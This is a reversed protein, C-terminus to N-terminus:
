NLTWLALTEVDKVFIRNGSIVPPAWTASTAVTYTKAPTFAVGPTAKGVMLEGTDKLLFILDGSRTIAANGGQRPESLWLTKGTKADAWFFQGSNLPSMSFIADGILVGNSFSMQIAPNEWALDAVWKGGKNAVIYATLPKGQGSVIITNGYVLPTISNTTSRSEFPVSWLLAGTEPNVGIFNQQSFLLLHRTGGIDAIIPSGYAPGDGTWSWRIKGTAPDFSNLTGQKDGGLHLFMQNRDVLPSMATHFQPQLPGSPIRWLEKGTAADWATVISSMGLTFIRGDAYTPTSKPGPGHRKTGSTMEFPAAYSKEWIVKGSEADIARLIENEGQRSFQYVRNGVLIPTAYGEGVTIKWRQTLSDPWTKPETFATLTGDRRPGRWQPWDPGANQGAVVATFGALVITGAILRHSTNM